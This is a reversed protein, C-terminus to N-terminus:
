RVGDVAALSPDGKPLLINFFSNGRYLVYQVGTTRDTLHNIRVDSVVVDAIHPQEGPIKKRPQTPNVYEFNPLRHTRYKITYMIAYDPFDGNTAIGVWQFGRSEVLKAVDMFDRNHGYYTFRRTLDYHFNLKGRPDDRYLLAGPGFLGRVNTCITPVLAACMVCAVVPLAVNRWRATFAVALVPAFLAIHAIFYRVHWEQWKVSWNFILFGTIAIASVLFAMPADIRERALWLM